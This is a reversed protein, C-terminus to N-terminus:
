PNGCLAAGGDPAGDPIPEIVALPITSANTSTSANLAAEYPYCITDGEFGQIRVRYSGFLLGTVQVVEDAEICRFTAGACDSAFTDSAGVHFTAPMCTQGTSDRLELLFGTIGAGGPTEEPDCNSGSAATVDLKFQLTADATVDFAIAGLQTDRGDEVVVDNFVQSEDLQGLSVTVDYTGVPFPRTTAMMSTCSFSDIEAVVGDTPRATITVPPNGVAACTSPNGELSVTWSFGILGAPVRADPGADANSSGGGGCGLLGAALIMSISRM